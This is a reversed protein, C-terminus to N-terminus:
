SKRLTVHAMLNAGAKTGIGFNDREFEFDEAKADKIDFDFERVLTQLLMYMEAWAFSLM